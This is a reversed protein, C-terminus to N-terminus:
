DTQQSLELRDQLLLNLTELDVYEDVIEQTPISYKGTLGQPKILDDTCTGDSLKRSCLEILCCARDFSGIRVDEKKKRFITTMADSLLNIM